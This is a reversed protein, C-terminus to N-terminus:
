GEVKPVQWSWPGAKTRSKVSVVGAVPKAKVVSGWAYGKLEALRQLTKVEVPGDALTELLWTKVRETKHHEQTNM